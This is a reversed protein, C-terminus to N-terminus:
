IWTQFMHRVVNLKFDASNDVFMEDNCNEQLTWLDGPQKIHQLLCFM